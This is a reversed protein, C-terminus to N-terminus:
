VKAHISTCVGKETKNAMRENVLFSVVEVYWTTHKDPPTHFITMIGAEHIPKIRKDFAEQSFRRIFGEDARKQQEKHTNFVAFNIDLVEAM